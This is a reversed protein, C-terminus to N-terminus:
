GEARKRVGRRMNSGGRREEEKRPRTVLRIETQPGWSEFPRKTAGRKKRKGGAFVRHKREFKELSAGLRAEGNEGDGGIVFLGVSM